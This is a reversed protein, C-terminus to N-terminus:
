GTMGIHACIEVNMGKNGIASANKDIKIPPPRLKSHGLTSRGINQFKSIGSSSWFKLCYFKLIASTEIKFILSRESTSHGFKRNM